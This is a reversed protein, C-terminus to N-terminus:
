TSQAIAHFEATLTPYLSRYRPYHDRYDKSAVGPTIADTVQIVADCAEQVSQYIEAGVGALLAAGFAAGETTNVRSLEVGLVDAMIQLWLASKAGGGSARVQRIESLDTERLLAFCDNLGFAVGELVSRTLHARTHRVTLGVWAGRALPDPHPTREGTLYPLFFLGDSGPSIAAAEGILEDFGLNPALTDGYWQLSGAASLM